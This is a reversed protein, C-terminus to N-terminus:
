VAQTTVYESLENAGVSASKGEEAASRQRRGGSAAETLTALPGTRAVLVSRLRGRV